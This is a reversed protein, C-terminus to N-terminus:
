QKVFQVAPQSNVKVFYNGAPLQAVSVRIHTNNPAAEYVTQGSVNTIVLTSIEEAATITIEDHAPNPSIVAMATAANHIASPVSPCSKVYILRSVRTTTCSNAVAYRITDVGVSLGTAVGTASVSSHSGAASWVGGTTTSSMTITSGICVTDPGTVPAVVPPDCAIKRVRNNLCDGIFLNGTKDVFIGQPYNLTAALAPGGDGSFSAVGPTGAITTVIGTAINIKRIVLNDTDAFLINGFRDLCVGKPFRINAATAPGGDGSYGLTGTGAITTIIGSPSVKRIRHGMMEAIYINGLSDATVGSPHNVGAATAAGGDGGSTATGNGAVTTIIGSTAIKRVRHNWADSFYVNGAQDWFIGQPDHVQALTAPGGDGSYGAVGTGAITYILGGSEASQILRIRNNDMDSIVVHGMQNVAMGYPFNLHATTALIGDGNYGATGSGAITSINGAPDIKRIRNNGVDGIYMNGASDTGIDYPMYVGSSTAPVGDATFGGFGTGAITTIIQASSSLSLFLSLSLLILKM